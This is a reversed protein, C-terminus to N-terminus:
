SPDGGPAGRALEEVYLAAYRAPYKAALRRLAKGRARADARQGDSIGARQRYERMKALHALRCAEDVPEGRRHHRYYATDTGCPVLVRSVVCGALLAPV